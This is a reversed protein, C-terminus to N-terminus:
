EHSTSIPDLWNETRVTGAIGAIGPIGAIGVTEVETKMIDAINMVTDKTDTM